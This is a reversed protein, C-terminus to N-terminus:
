FFSPILRILSLYVPALSRTTFSLEANFLKHVLWGVLPSAITLIILSHSVSRHYTFSEVAGSLPVLVDLDPLTGVVAGVFMAKRRIQRSAVVGGVAAGLVAQTISDM